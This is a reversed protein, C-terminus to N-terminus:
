KSDVITKIIGNDILNSFINKLIILIIPGLILGMIGIFKFGTYMAILTFFPHIGIQKSVIRPEIFQRVVSMLILLGIIALGLNLDGNLAAAVAWPIMVTGSGLIPLADVFGITLAILLPYQIKLGIFKFVFLGIVSIIFSIFILIAQAKLYGGLIIAIERIHNLMKKSWKKPLHHEVLDLIYIKDTCIFYLALITVAFYIGISPMSTVINILNTLLNKLWESIYNLIDGASNQIVQMIEDPVHIKDFNFNSIMNQIHFYAKDFYSNLTQLLGTAESIVTVIGWALLGVILGFVIIFIIISSARRTLKAKNMLLKIAPEMLLSIIFAILFPIYFISLKFALYISFISLILYTSRQIIRTWHPTDFIM